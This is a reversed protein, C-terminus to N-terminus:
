AGTNHGHHVITLMIMDFDLKILVINGYMNFIPTLRLNLLLQFNSHTYFIYIYTIFPRIPNKFTRQNTYQM